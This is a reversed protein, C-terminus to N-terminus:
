GVHCASDFPHLGVHHVWANDDDVVDSWEWVKESVSGCKTLCEEDGHKPDEDNDESGHIIARNLRVDKIGGASVFLNQTGEGVFTPVQRVGEKGHEDEESSSIVKQQPGGIPRM